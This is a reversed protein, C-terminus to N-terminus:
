AHLKAEVTRTVGTLRLSWSEARESILGSGEMRRVRGPSLDAQARERTGPM